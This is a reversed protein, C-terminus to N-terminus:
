SKRYKGKKQRLEDMKKKPTFDRGKNIKKKKKKYFYIISIRRIGRLSFVSPSVKM